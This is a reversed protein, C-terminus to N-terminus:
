LSQLALDLKAKLADYKFPKALFDSFGALLLDGYDDSKFSATIAIISINKYRNYRRVQQMFSIGDMQKGLNIDALIIDIDNEILCQFAENVNTTAIINYHKSQLLLVIYDLLYKQDDIVLITSAEDSVKDIFLKGTGNIKM